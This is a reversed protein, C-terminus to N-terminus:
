YPREAACISSIKIKNLHHIEGDDFGLVLHERSCFLLTRKKGDKFELESFLMVRGGFSGFYDEGETNYKEKFKMRVEMIRAQENKDM